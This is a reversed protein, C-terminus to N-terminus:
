KEGNLSEYLWKWSTGTTIEYICSETVGYQKAIEKVPIGAKRMEIINIVDQNKFKSRKNNEGRPPNNRHKNVMDILNESQTGEYLHNPNVCARNDCLHMVVKGNTFYKNILLFSIRHAILDFHNLRFCGYGNSYLKGLFNWCENENSIDTQKWFKEEFTLHAYPGTKIESYLLRLLEQYNM